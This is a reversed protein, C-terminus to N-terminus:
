GEEIRVVTKLKNIRGPYVACVFKENIGARIGTIGGGGGPLNLKEL